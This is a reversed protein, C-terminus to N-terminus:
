SITDARKQGSQKRARFIPEAGLQDGEAYVAVVGGPEVLTSQHNDYIMSGIEHINSSHMVLLVPEGCCAAMEAAEKYCPRVRTKFDNLAEGGPIPEDPHDIYYQLREKNEADKPQGSFEGVNWPHLNPTEVVPMAKAAGITKATEIARAKDSSVIHSLDIAQFYFALSAAERRGQRDLSVNSHGRFCNDANLETEGHRAAFFLITKNSM